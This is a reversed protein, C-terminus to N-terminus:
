DDVDDHGGIRGPRRDGESRIQGRELGRGTLHRRLAPAATDSRIM